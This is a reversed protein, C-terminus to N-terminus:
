VKIKQRSVQSVFLPEEDGILVSEDDDGATNYITGLTTVAM